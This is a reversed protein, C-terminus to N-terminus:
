SEFLRGLHQCAEEPLKSTRAMALGCRLGEQVVQRNLYEASPSSPSLGFVAYCMDVGALQRDTSLQQRRIKAASVLAMAQLDMQSYQEELGQANIALLVGVRRRYKGQMLHAGSTHPLGLEQLRGLLLFDDAYTAIGIRKTAFPWSELLPTRGDCYLFVEALEALRTLPEILDSGDRELTGLVIPPLILRVRRWSKAAQIATSMARAVVEWVEDSGAITATFESGRLPDDLGDIWLRGRSYSRLVEPPFSEILSLQEFAMRGAAQLTEQGSAGGSLLQRMDTRELRLPAREDAAAQLGCRVMAADALSLLLPAAIETCDSEALIAEIALVVDEASKDTLQLRARLDAQLMARGWPRRRGDRGLVTLNPAAAESGALRRLRRQRERADRYRSYALAMDYNGSEQLVYIVADQIKEIGLEGEDHERSLHDVVVSALEEALDEDAIVESSVAEQARRIAEVVRQRDFPVRQGDRKLVAEPMM